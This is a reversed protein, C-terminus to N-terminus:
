HSRENSPIHFERLCILELIKMQRQKEKYIIARVEYGAANLDFDVCGIESGGNRPVTVSVFSHIKGAVM